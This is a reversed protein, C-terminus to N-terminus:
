RLWKSVLLFAVEHMSIEYPRNALRGPSIVRVHINVESRLASSKVRQDGLKQLPSKWEQIQVHGSICIDWSANKIFRYLVTIPGDAVRVPRDLGPISKHLLSVPYDLIM